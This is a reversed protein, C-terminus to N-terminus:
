VEVCVTYGKTCKLCRASFANSSLSLFLLSGKFQGDRSSPPDLLWSSRGGDGLGGTGGVPCSSTTTTSLVAGIGAADGEEEMDLSEEAEMSSQVQIDFIFRMEIIINDLNCTYIVALYM